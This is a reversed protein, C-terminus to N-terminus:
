FINEKNERVMQHAENRTVRIGEPDYKLKVVVKDEKKVVYVTRVRYKNMMKILTEPKM